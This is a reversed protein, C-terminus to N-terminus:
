GGFSMDKPKGEQQEGEKIHPAAKAKRYHHLLEDLPLDSERQLAAVEERREEATFLAEDAELTREDDEEEMDAAGGGPKFDGDDDDVAPLDQANGAEGRAVDAAANGGGGGGADREAATADHQVAHNNGGKGGADTSSPAVALNEALMSSYRETQGLLFDLHRDLAAKKRQEIQLQQKYVVLKEIKAWFRKVERAMGSAARRMRQEEDKQRREERATEDLRSRSARAAVGKAQKLKWRREREFDKALWAMEELVHDWHAKARAPEVFKAPRRISLVQLAVTSPLLQAGAARRSCCHFPAPPPQTTSM